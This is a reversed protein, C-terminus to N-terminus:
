ELQYASFMRLKAKEHQREELVDVCLSPSAPLHCVRALFVLSVSVRLLFIQALVFCCRELCRCDCAQRQGWGQLYPQYLLLINSSFPCTHLLVPHQCSAFADLREDDVGFALGLLSLVQPWSLAGRIM